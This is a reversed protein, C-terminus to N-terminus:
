SDGKPQLAQRRIRRLAESPTELKSVKITKLNGKATTITKTVTKMERFGVKSLKDLNKQYQENNKERNEQKKEALKNAFGRNNKGLKGHRASAKSM